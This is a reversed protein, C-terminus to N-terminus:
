GNAPTTRTCHSRYARSVAPSDSRDQRVECNETRQDEESIAQSVWRSCVVWKDADGFERPDDFEDEYDAADDSAPLWGSNQPLRPMRVVCEGDVRGSAHASLKPVRVPFVQCLDCAHYNVSDIVWCSVPLNRHDVIMNTVVNVLASGAADSLGRCSHRSVCQRCCKGSRDRLRRYFETDLAVPNVPRM